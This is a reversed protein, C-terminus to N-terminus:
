GWSLALIFFFGAIYVHVHVHILVVPSSLNETQDTLIVSVILLFIGASIHLWHLATLVVPAMNRVPNETNIPSNGYLSISLSRPGMSFTFHLLSLFHRILFLDSTHFSM